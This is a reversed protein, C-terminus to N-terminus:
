VGRKIIKGTTLISEFEPYKDLLEKLKKIEADQEEKARQEVDLRHRELITRQREQERREANELETRVSCLVHENSVLEVIECDEYIQFGRLIGVSNLHSRLHGLTRWIKGKKTFKPYSGGNSFLDDSRRKIKYFIEEAM